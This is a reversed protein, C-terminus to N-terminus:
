ERQFRRARLFLTSSCILPHHNLPRKLPSSTQRRSRCGHILQISQPVKFLDLAREIMLKVIAVVSSSDTLEQQLGATMEVTAQLLSLPRKITDDTNLSKISSHLNAHHASPSPKLNDRLINPAIVVALNFANMLNGKPEVVSSNLSSIDDHAVCEGSNLSISNLLLMLQELVHRHSAPLLFVLCKLKAFQM